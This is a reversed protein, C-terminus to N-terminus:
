VSMNSLRFKGTHFYKQSTFNNFKKRLILSRM